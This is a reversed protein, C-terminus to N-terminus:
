NIKLLKGTRRFNNDAILEVFYVGCPWSEISLKFIGDSEFSSYFLRGTAGYIFLRSKEPSLNLRIESKAPNPIIMLVQSEQDNEILDSTNNSPYDQPTKTPGDIYLKGTETFGMRDINVMRNGGQETLSIHSHYVCIMESGDPSYTVSHHGPGSVKDEVGKNSLVPNNAYKVFPGKPSSATAYGVAYDSKGYNNASYMLYYLGSHKLMVAGENWYSQASSKFEWSQSPYILMETAGKIKSLDPELEIVWIESRNKGISAVYNTSMAVSYYMYVKGDDDFFIHSDICGKTPSYEYFPEDSVDVFPGLPSKSMAMGIKKIDDNKAGTYHLYYTDGLKVVEPAWFTDTSWKYNANPMAKGKYKWTVLDTSSFVNFGKGTVYCYYTGDDDKFVFPDAATNLGFYGPAIVPNTYKDNGFTSFIACLFFAVFLTRM